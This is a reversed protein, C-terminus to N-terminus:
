YGDEIPLHHHDSAPDSALDAPQSFSIYYFYQTSSFSTKKDNRNGATTLNNKEYTKVGIEAETPM